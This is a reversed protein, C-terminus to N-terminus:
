QKKGDKADSRRYSLVIGKPGPESDLSGTHVVQFVVLFQDQGTSPFFVDDKGM